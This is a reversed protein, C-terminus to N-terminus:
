NECNDKRGYGNRLDAAGVVFCFLVFNWLIHQMTYYGPNGVPRRQLKNVKGAAETIFLM